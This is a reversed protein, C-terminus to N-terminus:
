FPQCAEIAITQQQLAPSLLRDAALATLAGGARIEAGLAHDAM